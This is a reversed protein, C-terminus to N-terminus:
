TPELGSKEAGKRVSSLDSLDIQVLDVDGTCTEKLKDHVKEGKNISRCVMIIKASREGLLRAAEFGIGSNSGTIVYTKGSLDSLQSPKWDSFGYQNIKKALTFRRKM